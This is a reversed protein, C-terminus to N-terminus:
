GGIHEGERGRNSRGKGKHGRSSIRYQWIDEFTIGKDGRIQRLSHLGFILSPSFSHCLFLKTESKCVLYPKFHYPTMLSYSKLGSVSVCPPERRSVQNLQSHCQRSHCIKGDLFFAQLFIFSCFFNQHM